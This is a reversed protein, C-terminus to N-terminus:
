RIVCTLLSRGQMEVVSGTERRHKLNSNSSTAYTDLNARNGVNCRVPLKSLNILVVVQTGGPDQYASALLGDVPSSEPDVTCGIRVMGPRIFRSFNGLAWLLKSDRAVGHDMLSVTEPGMRGTQGQSGDDLYILGDKFDVQSLATWWQWSRADALTLDHHIIRAVFLATDIGLDRGGGHGIESNQELICYESQWYGLRPNITLFAQRLQRRYDVQKAVPWVSHYAHASLISAVNPLDAVYFPSGPNFFFDAQRDRGDNSMVKAAHGITAAEGIVLQTTLRRQWLEKSLCRVLGYLELNLAPTGEQNGADWPWQPENFPSLYDFHLGQKEFHEVVDALFSAYAELKEPRLNLHAEGKPAYGKGNRSLGVPPANVFALLSEVGRRKAAELFWRQGPQRTGDIKGDPGLMSEGRRWPNAIGSNTGQEASGAGINFRWISLGIGRPNGDSDVERSFLWDAIRERTELPWRKGVFQCQWADSAGFGDIAQHTTAPDIRVTIADGAAVPRLIAVLAFLFLLTWSRCPATNRGSAIM